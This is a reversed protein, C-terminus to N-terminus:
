SSSSAGDDDDDGEGVEEDGDGAKAGRVAAAITLGWTQLGKTIEPTPPWLSNSLPLFDNVMSSSYALSVM